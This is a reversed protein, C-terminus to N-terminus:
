TGDGSVTISNEENNEVSKAKEQTAKKMSQQYIAETAISITRVVKDYFSHFIPRSLDIFACFKEIGNVGIGLLQMALIIRCNIEHGKNIFPWNPIFTQECNQCSIVIKFGLGRKVTETFKVNSKCTKCVIVELIASFVAIFNLLRYGFAADVEVNYCDKSLKLKKASISVSESQPSEMEFRNLPWRKSINLRRSHGRNGKSGKQNHYIGETKNSM